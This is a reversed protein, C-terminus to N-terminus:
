KDDLVFTVLMNVQYGKIQGNEVDVRQEKVWASSIGRLTKSARALGLKIADEFSKDSRASIESVKAVSSGMTIRRDIASRELKPRTQGRCRRPSTNGGHALQQRLATRGDAKLNRIHASLGEQDRLRRAPALVDVEHNYAVLAVIDDSAIRGLAMGAAEKAAAIRPGQMSGSRDLVLAVNVPTRKDGRREAIAKLSLRLYVKGGSTQIARQGLDAELKIEGATAAIPPAAVACLLVAATVALMPYHMTM